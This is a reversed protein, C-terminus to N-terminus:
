KKVEIPEVILRITSAVRWSRSTKVRKITDKLYKEYNRSCEINKIQKLSEPIRDEASINDILLKNTDRLVKTYRWSPSELLGRLRNELATIRERSNYITGPSYSSRGLIGLTEFLLKRVIILENNLRTIKEQNSAGSRLSSQRFDHAFGGQEEIISIVEAMSIIVRDFLVTGKLPFKEKKNSWAKGIEQVESILNIFFDRSYAYAFGSDSKGIKRSALPMHVVSSKMSLRLLYEITSLHSLKRNFGKGINDARFVVTMDNLLAKHPQEILMDVLEENSFTTEGNNSIKSTTSDDRKADFYPHDGLLLVAASETKMRILLSDIEKAMESFASGPILIFKGRARKLCENLLEERTLDGPCVWTFLKRQQVLAQGSLSEVLRKQDEGGPALIEFSSSVKSIATLYGSLVKENVTLPLCVTIQANSVSKSESATKKTRASKSSVPLAPAMVQRPMISRPMVQKSDSKSASAETKRQINKQVGKPKISSAVPAAPTVAKGQVAKAPIKRNRSIDGAALKKLLLELEPNLIGDVDIAEPRIFKLLQLYSDIEDSKFEIWTQRGVTQLGLSFHELDKARSVIVLPTSASHHKLLKKVLSRTQLPERETVVIVARPQSNRLRHIAKLVPYNLTSTDEKKNSLKSEM